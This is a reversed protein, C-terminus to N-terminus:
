FLNILGRTFRSFRYIQKKYIQNQELRTKIGQRTM